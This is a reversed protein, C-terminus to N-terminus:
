GTPNHINNFIEQLFKISEETLLIKDKNKKYYGEATDNFKMGMAMWDCVMCVCHCESEYPSYPRKTTWNQWHHANEAKHHDWALDFAEKMRLHDAEAGVDFSEWEKGYPSFFWEAYQIFENASLKSLDHKKIMEDISFYVHDDYVFHMHKCSEKLIAWAKQVNDYHEEVYDCYARIADLKNKM